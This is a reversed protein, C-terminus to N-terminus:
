LHRADRLNEDRLHEVLDAPFPNEVFQRYASRQEASTHLGLDILSLVFEPDALRWGDTRRDIYARYSSWPYDEPQACLKARVPNRHVYRSAVLLYADKEILRSHFRGQFVHGVRGYRKNFLKTYTVGLSQMIQSITTKPSPEIILHVHNPMLAYAHLTFMFREKARRLRDLYTHYDRAKLFIPQRNNGRATVHYVAGEFCLRPPYAM